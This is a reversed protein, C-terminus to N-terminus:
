HDSLLADKITQAEVDKTISLWVKPKLHRTKSRAVMPHNNIPLVLDIIPMTPNAPSNNHSPPLTSLPETQTIDHTTSTDINPTSLISSTNFVLTFSKTHVIHIFPVYDHSM